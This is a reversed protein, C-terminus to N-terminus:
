HCLNCERCLGYFEFRSDQTVFGSQKRVVEVPVPLNAAFDEIKGCKTCILNLHSRTDVDYRNDRGDFEMEKVLQYKKFQGLIHYVTSISISPVQERVRRYIDSASPHSRNGALVAIVALRQSTLKLGSERLRTIM